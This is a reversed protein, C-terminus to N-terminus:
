LFVFARVFPHESAGVSACVCVRVRISTHASKGRFMCISLASGHHPLVRGVRVIAVCAVAHPAPHALKSRGFAARHRRGLDQREHLAALLDALYPVLMCHWADILAGHKTCGCMGGGSRCCVHRGAQRGAQRCARVCACVWAEMHRCERTCMCASVHSIRRKKAELTRLQTRLPPYM